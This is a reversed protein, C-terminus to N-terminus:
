NKSQSAIFNALFFALYFCDCMMAFWFGFPVFGIFIFNGIVLLLFSIAGGNTSRGNTKSKNRSKSKYSKALTEAVGALAWLIWAILSIGLMMAALTGPLTIFIYILEDMTFEALEKEPTYTGDALRKPSASRIADYGMYVALFYFGLFVLGFDAIFELVLKAYAPRPKLQALRQQQELRTKKAKRTKARWDPVTLREILESKSGSVPLKKEKLIEKLEPIKLKSYYRKGKKTSKEKKPKAKAPKEEVKVIQSAGCDPCFKVGDPLEKGCEICFV